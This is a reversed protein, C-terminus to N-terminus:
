QLSFITLTTLPSPFYISMFFSIGVVGFNKTKKQVVFKSMTREFYDTLIEVMEKYSSTMFYEGPTTTTSVVSISEESTVDYNMPNEQLDSQQNLSDANESENREESKSEDLLPVFEAATALASLDNVSSQNEDVFSDTIIEQQIDDILITEEVSAENMM